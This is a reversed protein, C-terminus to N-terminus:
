FFLCYASENVLKKELDIEEIPGSVNADNFHYWKNDKQNKCSATYHGFM